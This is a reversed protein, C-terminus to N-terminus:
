FQKRKLLRPQIMVVTSSRKTEIAEGGGLFRFGKKNRVVLDREFGALVLTEGNGLITQQEFETTMVNPLQITQNNTTFEKLESLESLHIAYQLLIESNNLVRPLITMEFGTSIQGPAISVQNLGSGDLLLDVNKAYAIDRVVQIPVPRNNSTTAGTRTEITVEGAQNLLGLLLNVNYDSDIIGVNVFSSAGNLASNQTINFFNKGAEGVMANLTGGLGQKGELNVTLINVDLAIQQGLQENIKRIYQSVRAHDRPTGNVLIIGTGALFSYEGKGVIFQQLSQQIESFLDLEIESFTTGIASSSSANTAFTDLQYSKLSYQQLHIGGHSYRWTLDFHSAVHDLATPLDSDFAIQMHHTLSAEGLQHTVAPLTSSQNFSEDWLGDPIVISESDPGVSLYFPYNVIRQIGNLVEILGAQKSSVWYIANPAKLETPLQDKNALPIAQTEIYKGGEIQVGQNPVASRNQFDEIKTEIIRQSQETDQKIPPVNSECSCLIILALLSGTVAKISCPIPAKKINMNSM